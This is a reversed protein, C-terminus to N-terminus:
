PFMVYHVTQDGKREPLADQDAVHELLADVSAFLKDQENPM